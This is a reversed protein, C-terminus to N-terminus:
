VLIICPLVGRAQKNLVLFLTYCKLSLTLVIIVITALVIATAILLLSSMAFLLPVHEPKLINDKM